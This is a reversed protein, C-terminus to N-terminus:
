YNEKPKERIEKPRDIIFCDLMYRIYDWRKNVFDLVDRKTAFINIGMHVPFARIQARRTANKSPPIDFDVPYNENLYEDEEDYLQFVDLEHGVQENLHSGLGTILEFLPSGVDYELRYKGSLKLILKNQKKKNPNSLINSLESKFVENEFLERLRRRTKVQGQTIKPKEEM